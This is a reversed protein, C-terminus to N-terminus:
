ARKVKRSGVAKKIKKNYISWGVAAATLVGMAGSFAVLYMYVVAMVTTEGFNDM